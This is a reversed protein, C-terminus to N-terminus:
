AVDLPPFTFQAAAAVLPAPDNRYQELRAVREPTWGQPPHTQAVLAALALRRLPAEPSGALQTELQELETNDRYTGARELVRVATMLAEAHLREATVLERFFTALAGSDLAPVALRIQLSTTLPDSALSAIIAGATAQFRSRQWSIQLEVHRVVTQLARRNSLLHAAIQGIASADRGVYTQVIADAAANYVDPVNTDLAQLLGPELLRDPDAVPLTACRQLVAVRVTADAHALVLCLLRVLRQQGATSLQDAPIRTVAAALIPDPSTAARELIAWSQPQELYNWLARLLAVRVDRHLAQDDLALLDQYAEPDRLDGLLRVVEKAVTVRDLPIARLLDLAQRRPIRDIAQRLAYIAVRARDDGLAELLVPVGQGTDLRGLAYLVEEQIAPRPDRALAILTDPPVSPLAALQTIAQTIGPVDRQPDTVVETLTAAFRAQQQDTWRFFGYSVPLVFRTKGTSFRGAYAHQGLFPTLLDQRRTHLYTFVEHQTIWSPDARLLAPILTALRDRRDAALLSLIRRATWAPVPTQIIRELTAVLDDAGELRRGFWDALGAIADYEERAEWAAVVPMLAPLLRHVDEDTLYDEARGTDDWVRRRMLTEALLPASWDPYTPFLALMLQVASTTTASSLDIAALADHLIQGLTELQDAQWISCPLAALAALMAGRVPDQENRRAAVVALAEPLHSRRYRTTTILASLAVSRIAADAHRIFPDLVTRAEQWPLFAAYQLRETPRTTLAPLALHRRGEDERLEGPLAAVISYPMIGDTNRWGYRAALYVSRRVDPRLREFWRGPLGLTGPQASLLAILQTEPLRDAVRDLRLTSQEDSALLLAAVESPRYHALEDLNLQPLAISQHLARVVDITLDPVRAALEPLVAAAIWRLRTDLRDTREARERLAAAAQAPHYRALRMWATQGAHELAQELHRTVADDSGFALLPSLDRDNRPALTDLFADIPAYRRARALRAVLRRRSDPLVTELATVAQADDCLLAVLSIARGRITYSPDSLAALVHAGDRSGHCAQLALMRRYMDGQALANLTGRVETDSAAQRGVIVMRYMWANHSLTELEALLQEVTM